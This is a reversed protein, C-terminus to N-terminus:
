RMGGQLNLGQKRRSRGFFCQLARKACWLSFVTFWLGWVVAPVGTAQDLLTADGAQRPHNVGLYLLYLSGVMSEELTLFAILLYYWKIITQNGWLLVVVNLAVFGILWLMGYGNRVFLVLTLAALGTVAALGQKQLGRSYLAFLMWAFLSATMYGALGIPIMSWPRTIMSKTVGSHDAYLEIYMVKGSLLLTVAAHGFEHITTDLYRFFSSFPILRTLFVSGILFLVTLLWKSM